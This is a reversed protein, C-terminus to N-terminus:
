YLGSLSGIELEQGCFDSLLRTLQRSRIRGADNQGYLTGLENIKFDSAFLTIKGNQARQLMLPYVIQDRLFDSKYENGFEDIALVDLAALRAFEAQFRPKDTIAADLLLKFQLPANIVAAQAKGSFLLENVITVMVFSKGSRRAGIIYLWRESQGQVLKVAESLLKSRAQRDDLAVLRSDKWEDPFDAILYKADREIKAMLLPCPELTREIHRGNRTLRVQYHRQSKACAELGPCAQCYSQDEFYATFLAINEKVEAETAELRKIEAAVRADQVLLQYQTEIAEDFSEPFLDGVKIKEM